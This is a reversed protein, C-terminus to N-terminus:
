FLAVGKKGGWKIGVLTTFVNGGERNKFVGNGWLYTWNDKDKSFVLLKMFDRNSYETMKQSVYLAMVKYSDSLKFGVAITEKNVTDGNMSAILAHQEDALNMTPTKTKELRIKEFDAMLFFNGIALGLKAGTRNREITGECDVAECDFISPEFDRYTQDRQAYVGLFSIPFFSIRAGATNVVGSTNFVGGVRLYGYMIKNAEWFKMGYGFKSQLSLAVPYTRAILRSSYDTEGAQSQFPTILSIFLIYLGLLKKM